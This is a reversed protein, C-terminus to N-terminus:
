MLGGYFQGRSLVYGLFAVAMSLLITVGGILKIIDNLFM